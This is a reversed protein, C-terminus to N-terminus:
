RLFMWSRSGDSTGTLVVASTLPVGSSHNAIPYPPRPWDLNLAALEARVRRLDWIQFYGQEYVIALRAGDSSFALQRAARGAPLTALEEWTDLSSLRIGHASAVVATLSSSPDFAGILM